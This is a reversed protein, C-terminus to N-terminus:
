DMEMGISTMAHKTVIMDYCQNATQVAFESVCCQTKQEPAKFFYKHAAEGPGGYFNIASGYRKIYPQFKTMGHMKPICYGNSKEERPFLTQVMKLVEAILPRASNVEKKDNSDHFWEEMSLYLKLCKIWRQWKNNLYQLGKRLIESGEVTHAICLLLFLNGRREEAQCKTGDILGNRMAGRPFDCESQHRIVLSIKIHLKDIDDRDKGSGIQVRLSEFMYSIIGSGSTHLLEPPTMQYPGHIDDSLPLSKDTLANVIDYRLIQKFHLQGQKEDSLKIKSQM